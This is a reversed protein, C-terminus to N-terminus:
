KGRNKLIDKIYNKLYTEIPSKATLWLPTEQKKKPKKRKKKSDHLYIKMYEELFENWQM